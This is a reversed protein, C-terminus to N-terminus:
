KKPCRLKIIEQEFEMLLKKFIINAFANFVLAQSREKSEGKPYFEELKEALEDFFKQFYKDHLLPTQATMSQSKSTKKKM